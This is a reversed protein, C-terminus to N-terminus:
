RKSRWRYTIGLNVVVPLWTNTELLPLDDASVPPELVTCCDNARNGANTVEIFTSLDGSARRHIWGARLDITWFDNWRLSNRAGVSLSSTAPAVAIPTRPWGRHWGALVSLNARNGTWTLGGTLALPQDWSRPIDGGRFEDTVQSWTATASARFRESLAVETRLELGRAETAEPAIRMRDPALDPLLASPDLLNDFYSAPTTWRKDYFELSWQTNPSQRYTLGAIAHIAIQAPDATRQGEEMRWEEIRQAQTFRGISGYMRWRSALDYRLNFRPSWQQSTGDAKYHQGDWRLGIEAEVQSWRRRLSAHLSYSLSKPAAAALLDDTRARAFADAVTPALQLRREYVYHSRGTLASAGVQFTTATSPKYEWDSTFELSDFSREEAVTGVAVAPRDVQGNRDREASTIALTTRAQWRSAIAARHTLWIYNDRYGATAYDDDTPQGLVIRDDLLLWGATWDNNPGARWRLRGMSDIFKPKGIGASLPQLVLDITSRRVTALWELPWTESHGISSAGAALLSLSASHEYGQERSPATIDIVGASRTGFRAPFGGSYVDLRAVAAPNIASILSQFNKLHFPDLLAVEDYRILVDDALSGRIYPRGSLNSVFGPLARLARVPDDEAGPVRQIDSPKLIRPEGLKRGDISYRSAYVSIEDLQQLVNGPVAATPARVVVYRGPAVSQLKLDAATLVAVARRM